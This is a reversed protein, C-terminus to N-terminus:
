IGERSKLWADIPSIYEKWAEQEEILPVIQAILTDMEEQLQYCIESILKHKDDVACISLACAVIENDKGCSILLNYIFEEPATEEPLKYQTICSLARARHVEIDEETGSYVKKMQAEKDEDTRYVDGDLVVLVNKLNKKAMVQGAAYTFANSAAGFRSISVKSSMSHKRVLSKVIAKSYDDEVYIQIPVSSEGSLNRIIDSNPKDYVVMVSSGDAKNILDIYQLGVYRELSLIELSHTTFVIQLHRDEAIKYLTEIMRRLACVHLLLDIEDILILSYPEANLVKEIIKITRQEGTGMSLSSYTLGSRTSVGMFHKTHYENDVLRAYDKNLVYTANELTKQAIKDLRANSTYRIRSQTTEKEIEPLCSDIGIYYVNRKPRDDYRPSWRDYQKCYTRSPLIERKKNKGEGENVVHFESGTWLADTNPVFFEPFRHNEGNGDPSYICALAHIVTTKGAGNVGMIATLPRKFEININSLGKLKKFYISRIQLKEM